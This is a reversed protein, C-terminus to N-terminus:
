HKRKCTNFGTLTYVPCFGIIAIVLSLCGFIGLMMRATEDDILTENIFGVYIMILSVCIRIAFDLWGINRQIKM